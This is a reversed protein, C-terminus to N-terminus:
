LALARRTRTGRPSRRRSGSGSLWGPRLLPRPAYRGGSWTAIEIEEFRHGAVVAVAMLGNAIGDMEIFAGRLDYYCDELTVEHESEVKVFRGAGTNRRVTVQM